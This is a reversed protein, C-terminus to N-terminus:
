GYAHLSPLYNVGFYTMAISLAAMLLYLHLRLPRQALGLGRHLPAAYLLLTVLAWTEKPDWAWYRGWSLNAWVAGAFIGLALLYVGPRLLRLALRAAERRRRPRSLGTLAAAFTLALLTYAVMVLSVHVTLWPSALVPMLPTLAPDKAAIWGSLAAFGAMVLGLLGVEASRRAAWAAGLALSAATLTMIQGSATLPAHGLYLWQWFFVLFGGTGCVASLAALRRRGDALALTLVLGAAAAGLLLMALVRLPQVRAYTTMLLARVPSLRLAEDAALPRFLTGQRLAALLAVREDLRMIADALAPEAKDYLQQLRYEGRPTYLAAPAVYGGEAGLMAALKREKVRLFPVDAWSEGYRALSLVFREPSLRAVRTRGTLKLTLEAAMAPLPVVRGRFVVQSAAASDAEAESVAKVAARCPAAGFALALFIASLASSFRRRRGRPRVLSWLGTLAFLAYGAYTLGIGAPDHAATLVSGGAGDFSTQYLRWGAIRGIRNMSIHLKRGDATHLYTHFDRPFAMGPYYEPTFRDLVLVLGPEVECPDGPRLHLQQRRATLATVGGGALMLLLSLHLLFLTPRRWLRTRVMGVATTMAVAAWFAFWWPSAYIKAPFFSTLGVALAATAWLFLRLTESRRM